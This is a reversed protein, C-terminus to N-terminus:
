LLQFSRRYWLNTIRWIPIGIIDEVSWTIVTASSRVLDNALVYEELRPVGMASVLRFVIYYSDSMKEFAVM